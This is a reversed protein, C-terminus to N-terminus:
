PDFDFFDRNENMYKALAYLDQTSVFNIAYKTLEVLVKAKQKNNFLDSM